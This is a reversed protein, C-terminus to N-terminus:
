SILHLSKSKKQKQNQLQVIVWILYTLLQSQNLSRKKRSRKLHIKKAKLKEQRQNISQLSMMQVVRTQSWQDRRKLHILILTSNLKQNKRKQNRKRLQLLHSEGLVELPHVEKILTTHALIHNISSSNLPCPSCVLLLITLHVMNHNLLHQTTCPVRPNNSLFEM